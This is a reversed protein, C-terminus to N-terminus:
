RATKGIFARERFAKSCDVRQHTTGHRSRFRLVCMDESPVYIRLIHLEDGIGRVDVEIAEAKTGDDGIDARPHEPALSTLAAVFAFAGTVALTLGALTRIARQFTSM